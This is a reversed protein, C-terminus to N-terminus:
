TRRIQVFFGLVLANIRTVDRDKLREAFGLELECARAILEIAQRVSQGDKYRDYAVKEGMALERVTVIEIREGDAKEIPSLLHVSFSSTDFNFDIRGKRVAFKIEEIVDQFAESDSDVELYDAWSRIKEIAENESFMTNKSKDM